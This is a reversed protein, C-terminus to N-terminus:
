IQGGQAQELKKNEWLSVFIGCNQCFSAMKPQFETGLTDKMDKSSQNM